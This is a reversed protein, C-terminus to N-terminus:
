LALLAAGVTRLSARPPALVSWPTGAQFRPRLVRPLEESDPQRDHLARHRPPRRRGSEHGRDAPGTPEPREAPTVEGGLLEPGVDPGHLRRGVPGEGDVQERE